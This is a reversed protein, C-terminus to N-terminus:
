LSASEPDKQSIRRRNYRVLFDRPSMGTHNSFFGSFSSLDKFGLDVAIEKISKNSNVLLMKIELVVENNIISSATKDFYKKCIINLYNSSLLMRDAYFKVNKKTRFYLMVLKFFDALKRTAPNEDDIFFQRCAEKSIMLTIIRMRPLVIEWINENRQLETYIGRFEYLLKYFIESSLSFSPNKKYFAFPFMMYNGFMELIPRSLIFQHVKHDSEYECQHVQGPFVLHMHFAAVPFEKEEITHMGVAKEFLLIIFFDYSKAQAYRESDGVEDYVIEKYANFDYQFSGLRLSQGTTKEKM